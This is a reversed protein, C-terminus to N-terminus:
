LLYSILSVAPILGIGATEESTQAFLTESNLNKRM